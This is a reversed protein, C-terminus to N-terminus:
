RPTAILSNNMILDKVVTGASATYTCYISFKTNLIDSVSGLNAPSSYSNTSDYKSTMGTDYAIQVQGSDAGSAIIGLLYNTSPSISPATGFSSTKLTTGSGAPVTVAGGIGNTVINLTSSLVLLGKFYDAAKGTGEAAYISIDTGSSADAPSTYISGYVYDPSVGYLNAGSTTYGFTPDVTVPYIANNLFEQPITVSLTNTELDINLEGLVEDGKNDIIRPRYIHFAKGTEYEIDPFNDRKTKHYVAYSGVVDIPRFCTKKEETTLEPQYFFDLGKTEISFEIKNTTPKENLVIDFEYRDDEENQAYLPIKSYDADYQWERGSFAKKIFNRTKKEENTLVGNQVIIGIEKTYEQVIEKYIDQSIDSKIDKLSGVLDKVEIEVGNKVVKKLYKSMGVIDTSIDLVFLIHNDHGGTMFFKKYTEGQKFFLENSKTRYVDRYVTIGQNEVVRQAVDLLKNTLVIRDDNNLGAFLFRCAVTGQDYTNAARWGKHFRRVIPIDLIDTNVRESLPFKGIVQIYKQNPRYSTILPNPSNYFQYHESEALIDPIDIEGLDVFRATKGKIDNETLPTSKKTHYFNAKRKTEEYVIKDQTTKVIGEENGKLRLSFNVENNWKKIKVQPKFDSQKIDGIEVEIKKKVNEDINFVFTNNVVGYKDRVKQSLIKPINAM